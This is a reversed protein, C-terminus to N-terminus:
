ERPVRNLTYYAEKHLLPQGTASKVGASVLEHIHGAVLGNIKLHVSKGDSSVMASEVSPTTFDVEPSGYSSQYIYAYTQLAYSKVDGATAPDAPETFTLEFGDPKARMAHIEFPMKDTWDLRELAFPKPGRSGWGRNTGGVFLSGRDTMRLSLTGSGFGERFPFCVGQYHGDIQELFCRMVTSNTQDGVFMQGAFPGFKGQTTDCAVGSASQGMKKYPFLVVPPEYQPIKAAETMFRSGSEPERPKEGMAAKVAPLDYWKNGGPHGVFKGPILHKLASTGNWPGQNDTYFMDGIANLGIGGPSRIGSCTPISRGDPTIRLCWGRYKVDSGFSGTLCLVVWLNGDKDFPSGFAYEHYDGSIEWDDNVVEFKDAVGDGTTDRIRSVDGRQTVYLWGDREAVGLVEHLGHAFRSWKMAAPDGFPNEVLWIEGRRTTVALKGSTLLEMAGSELSVGEPITLPTLRYFDNETPTQAVAAATMLAWLTISAFVRLCGTM